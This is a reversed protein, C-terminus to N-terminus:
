CGTSRRPTAAPRRPRREGRGRRRPGVVGRADPAARALPLHAAARPQTARAGRAARDRRVARRLRCTPPGRPRTPRRRRAGAAAPDRRGGAALGVRAAAGVPDGDGAVPGADAGGRHVGGARRAAVRLADPAVRPDRQPQGLPAAEQVASVLLAHEVTQTSAREAGSALRALVPGNSTLVLAKADIRLMHQIYRDIQAM